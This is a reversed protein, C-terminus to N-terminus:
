YLKQDIATDLVILISAEDMEEQLQSDCGM